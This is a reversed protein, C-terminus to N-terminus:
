MTRGTSLLTAFDGEETPDSKINQPESTEIVGDFVTVRDSCFPCKLADRPILHEAIISEGRAQCSSKIAM